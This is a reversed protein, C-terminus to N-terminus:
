AGMEEKIADLRRDPTGSKAYTQVDIRGTVAATILASRYEKLRDISTVIAEAVNRLRALEEDIKQAIERQEDMPPLFVPLSLFRDPELRWQDTRIGNSILHYITPMPVARLLHHMYQAYHEGCPTMVVYDPSTIGVFTSIGLSGQWAKMKNVVLDGPEVLQYKSLDEPTKNINDDRSSKEIVGYERYVSLVELDDFGQRKRIRFQAKLRSENWHAPVKGRWFTESAVFPMSPDDGRLVLRSIENKEKEPLLAVLRLKKNILLDIRATERDLFDAIQRQTDLDFLPFRLSLVDLSSLHKVTSWPTLDNIVKLSIPIQYGLIRADVGSNEKARLACVRQNLLADGKTWTVSNFDGDMGIAIDGDKVVIDNGEDGDFYTPLDVSLLDRIRVVPKGRGELNFGDSRFPYGNVLDFHDRVRYWTRSDGFASKWDEHVAFSV